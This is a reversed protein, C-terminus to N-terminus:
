EYIHVIKLDQVIIHPKPSAAVCPGFTDWVYEILNFDPFCAPYEMCKVIKAELFKELIHAAHSRANGQM